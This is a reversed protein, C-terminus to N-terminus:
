KLKLRRKAQLSPNNITVDLVVEKDFIVVNKIADSEILSKGEGPATITELANLIDQKTFSM